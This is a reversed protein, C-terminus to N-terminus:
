NSQQGEKEFYMEVGLDSHVFNCVFMTDIVVM